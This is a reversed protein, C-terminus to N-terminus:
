SDLRCTDHGFRDPVRSPPVPSRLGTIGRTGVGARSTPRAPTPGWGHEDTHDTTGSGSRGVRGAGGRSDPRASGPRARDAPRGARRSRDLGAGSRIRGDCRRGDQPPSRAESRQGSRERAAPISRTTSDRSPVRHGRGVSRSTRDETTRIMLLRWWAFAGSERCPRDPRPGADRSGRPSGRVRLELDDDHELRTEPVGGRRSGLIETPRGMEELLRRARDLVRGESAVLLPFELAARFESHDVQDIRIRADFVESLPIRGDDGPEGRRGRTVDPEAGDDLRLEVVAGMAALLHQLVEDLDLVEQAGNQLMGNSSSAARSYPRSRASRSRRPSTM